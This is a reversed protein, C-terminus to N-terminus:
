AAGHPYKCTERDPGVSLNTGPMQIRTDQAPRRKPVGVPLNTRLSIYGSASSIEGKGLVALGHTPNKLTRIRQRMWPKAERM